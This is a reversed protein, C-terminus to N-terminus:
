GRHGGGGPHLSDAERTQLGAAIEENRTRASTVAKERRTIGAVLASLRDVESQTSAVTALADDLQVKIGDFEESSPGSAYATLLLVSVAAGAAVKLGCRSRRAQTQAAPDDHDPDTPAPAHLTPQESM